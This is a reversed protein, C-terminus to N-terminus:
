TMVYLPTIRLYFKAKGTTAPAVGATTNTSTAATTIGTATGTASAINLTSDNAAQTLATLVITAGSGGVTYLDTLATQTQLYARCVAAVLSATNSATTVPINYTVPSGSLIASTVTVTMNGDATCGAAAVITATEVQAVGGTQTYKAWIDTYSTIRLKVNANSAPYFGPTGETIAGAGLLETATSSTGLTLVNTSAANFATIVEAWVELLQPRDTSGAITYEKVASAIDPTDFDVDFNLLAPVNGNIIEKAPIATHLM